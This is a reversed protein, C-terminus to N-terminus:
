AYSSLGKLLGSRDFGRALPSKVLHLYAMGMEKRSRKGLQGALRLCKPTDLTRAALNMVTAAKIAAPAKSVSATAINSRRDSRFRVSRCGGDSLDLWALSVTAM